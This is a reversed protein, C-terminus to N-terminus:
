LTIGFFSSSLPRHTYSPPHTFTMYSDVPGGQVMHARGKLAQLSQIVRVEIFGIGGFGWFGLGCFWFGSFGFGWFGM